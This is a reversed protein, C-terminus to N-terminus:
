KNFTKVLKVNYADKFLQPLAYPTIIKGGPTYVAKDGVGYRFGQWPIKSCYTPNTKDLKMDIGYKYNKGKYNKNVWDAAKVAAKSDKSRYIKVWNGKKKLYDKKFQNLSITAPKKGSGAIHM